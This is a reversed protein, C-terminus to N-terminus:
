IEKQTTMVEMKGEGKSITLKLEQNKELIKQVEAQLTLFQKSQTRLEEDLSDRETLINEVKLKLQGLFAVLVSNEIAM